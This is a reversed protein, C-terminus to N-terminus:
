KLLPMAVENSLGNRCLQRRVVRAPVGCSHKKTVTAHHHERAAADQRHAELACHSTLRRRFRSAVAIALHLVQTHQRNAVTTVPPAPSIKPVRNLQEGLRVERM